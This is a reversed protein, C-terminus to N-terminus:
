LLDVQICNILSSVEPYSENQTKFHHRTALICVQNCQEDQVQGPDSIITVTQQFSAFGRQQGLWSVRRKMLHVPARNIQSYSIITMFLLLRLRGCRSNRQFQDLGLYLSQEAKQRSISQWRIRSPFRIEKLVPKFNFSFRYIGWRSVSMEFPSPLRQNLLIITFGSHLLRHQQKGTYFCLLEKLFKTILRNVKRSEATALSVHCSTRMHNLPLLPLLHAGCATRKQINFCPFFM